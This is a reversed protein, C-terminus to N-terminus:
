ESYHGRVGASFNRDGLLRLFINIKIYSFKLGLFIFHSTVTRTLSPAQFKFGSIRLRIKKSVRINKFFLLLFTHSIYDNKIVQCNLLRINESAEKSEMHDSIM